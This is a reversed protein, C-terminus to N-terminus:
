EVGGFLVKLIDMATPEPEPIPTPEPMVGPTWNTVTMIGNIEEATVDGFPFNVLTMNDPIVAWGQPIISTNSTQNKHAGNSLPKIEILRM